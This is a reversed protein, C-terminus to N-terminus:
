SRVRPRTLSDLSVLGDTTLDPGGSQQKGQGVPCAGCGTACGGSPRRALTRWARRALYALAVAVLTLAVVDQWGWTM